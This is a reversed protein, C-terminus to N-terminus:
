MGVIRDVQGSLIHTAVVTCVLRTVTIVAHSHQTNSNYSKGRHYWTPTGRQYNSRTPHRGSGQCGRRLSMMTPQSSTPSVATLEEDKAARIADKLSTYNRAAIITGLRHDSLGDCFRKIALQENLPFLVSSSQENGDAQTITLDTFLKELETGFNDISKHRQSCNLM